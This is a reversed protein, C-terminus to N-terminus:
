KGTAAALAADFADAAAMYNWALVRSRAHEGLRRRGPEDWALEELASALASVDREPVVLGTEQHIVLGGAAAGVADTAIVPLSCNMAENVVLGWPERFTRTSVSPVVLVDSAHLLAPLNGQDIHGIFRVRENIGLSSATARISDLLPGTGAVVVQHPAQVQASAAMLVRLGKEETIRGVFTFTPRDKLSFRNRLARIEGLAVPARFRENEVAQPSVFVKETRGSERQLFNSVHTGYTAVADASRYFSRALPRSFRHVLTQPHAWIGVWLVLPVGLGRTTWVTSVLTARGTLDSIVADYGGTRLERRTKVPGSAFITPVEGTDSPRDGEWYWENGRSTLILTLDMRRSMELFLPRRYHPCFNTVLAVRMVRIALVESVCTSANPM